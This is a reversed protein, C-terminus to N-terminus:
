DAAFVRALNLGLSFQLLEAEFSGRDTEIKGLEFQFSFRDSFRYRYGATAAYVM